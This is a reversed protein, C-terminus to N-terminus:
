HFQSVTRSASLPVPVCYSQCETSSPCLPIPCLTVLVLPATVCHPQRIPSHCLPVPSHPQSVNPSAFPATVCHSQCETSSPCLPIPCLPVLVLPATVCHSQRSPSHCMPVPSHPQSVIPSAFPATVCHSQCETYSSCVPVQVCPQGTDRM